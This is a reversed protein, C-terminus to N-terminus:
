LIKFSDFLVYRLIFTVGVVLTGSVITSIGVVDILLWLFFINLLSIFIGIWTYHVFKKDFFLQGLKTNRLRTFLQKFIQNEQM